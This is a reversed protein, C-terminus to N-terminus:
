HYIRFTEWRQRQDQSSYAGGVGSKQCRSSSHDGGSKAPRIGDSMTQLLQYKLAANREAQDRGPVQQMGAKSLLERVKLLVDEPLAEHDMGLRRLKASLKDVTAHARETEVFAATMSRAREEQKAARAMANMRVEAAWAAPDNAAERLAEQERDKKVKLEQAIQKALLAAATLGGAAAMHSSIHKKFDHGDQSAGSEGVGTLAKSLQV